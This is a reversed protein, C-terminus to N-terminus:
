NSNRHIKRRKKNSFFFRGGFLIILIGIAIIIWVLYSMGFLMGAQEEKGINQPNTESNTTTSVPIINETKNPSIASTTINRPIHISRLEVIYRGSLTISNGAYDTITCYEIFEGTQSTPPNSSSIGGSIGTTADTGSCSCSVIDGRYLTSPSCSM